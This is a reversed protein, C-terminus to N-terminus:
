EAPNTGCTISSFDFRETQAFPVSETTIPRDTVITVFRTKPLIDRNDKEEVLLFCYGHQRFIACDYITFGDFYKKWVAKEFVM